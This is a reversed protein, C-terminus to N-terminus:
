RGVRSRVMTYALCPSLYGEEFIIQSDSVGVDGRRNAAARRLM